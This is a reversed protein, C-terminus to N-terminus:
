CVANRARGIRIIHSWSATAGLWALGPPVVPWWWGKLLRRLRDGRDRHSGPRRGRHPSRKLTRVGLFAGLGAWLVIWLWGLWGAPEPAAARGQDRDPPASQRLACPDRRGSSAAQRRLGASLPTYFDDKVSEATVGILVVRDRVMTPHCRAGCSPVSRSGNSPGPASATTRSSSTAAPDLGIYPGDNPGLPYITTPGLRVISEDASDAGLGLGEPELYHLALRLAFSYLATQGDDLFLLGRRVIGGSDVVIDNFGVKETGKVVPPPGVGASSGDAFKTVVM